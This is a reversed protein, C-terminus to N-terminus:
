KLIDEIRADYGYKLFGDMIDAENLIKIVMGSDDLVKIICYNGSSFQKAAFRIYTDRHM